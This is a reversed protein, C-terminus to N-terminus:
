QEIVTGNTFTAWDRCTQAMIQPIQMHDRIDAPREMLNVYLGASVHWAIHCHFPWVGPNDADYQFVYHGNGRIVHTDRRAPNSPNTVTGNWEGAGSALEYM